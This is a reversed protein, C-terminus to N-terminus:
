TNFLVLKDLINSIKIDKMCQMPTTHLCERRLCPACPLNSNLISVSSGVPATKQPDTAGFLVLTPAKLAAALHAPGSDTSIVARAQALVSKLTGISLQNRFDIVNSSECPFWPGNGVLVCPTSSLAQALSQYNRYPWLKTRWRTYPHFVYYTGAQLSSPLPNPSPIQFDHPARAIELYDLAQLYREAAATATDHIRENYFIWSGERASSLGIRRSAGSLRTLIGSRFLGQLDLTLDYGVLALSRSQAFFSKWTKLRLRPLSILHSLAPHNELLPRYEEFVLWDIQADPWKRRLGTLM